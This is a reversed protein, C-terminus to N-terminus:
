KYLLVTYQIIVLGTPSSHLVSGAGYKEANDNLRRHYCRTTDVTDDDDDDAAAPLSMDRHCRHRGVHISRSHAASGTLPSRKESAVTAISSSSSIGSDTIVSGREDM